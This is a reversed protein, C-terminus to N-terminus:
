VGATRKWEKAFEAFWSRFEKYIGEQRGFSDFVPLFPSLSLLVWHQLNLHWQINIHVYIDIYMYSNALSLRNGGRGVDLMWLFIDSSSIGSAAFVGRFADQFQGLCDLYKNEYMMYDRFIGHFIQWSYVM